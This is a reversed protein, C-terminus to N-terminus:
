QDTKLQVEVLTGCPTGNEMLDTIQFDNAKGNQNHLHIREATIQIGYSSHEPKNLIKIENARARGVGTDSITYRIRNQQLRAKILLKKEGQQKNLLGHHIANEVFPQLLMAPIETNIVDIKSDTKIEYQFGFRLQEMKLYSDLVKLEEELSILEEKNSLVQRTLTSFTNLYENAKSFQKSGFFGRDASFPSPHASKLVMHKKEDILAGKKQAPSLNKM